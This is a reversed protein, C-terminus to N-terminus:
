LKRALNKGFEYCRKLDKSTPKGVVLLRGLCTIGHCDLIEFLTKLCKKGDEACGASTFVFGKKGTLKGYIEVTKDVIRKLEASITRFYTPSGLGICYAILFDKNRATRVSRVTSEIGGTNLGKSIAVAVKKTNGSRSHYVLIVRKM